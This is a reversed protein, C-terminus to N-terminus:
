VGDKALALSLGFLLDSIRDQRIWRGGGRDTAMDLVEFIAGILHWELLDVLMAFLLKGHIDTALEHVWIDILHFWAPSADSDLM